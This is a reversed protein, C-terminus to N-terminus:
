VNFISCIEKSSITCFFRNWIDRTSTNPKIIIWTCIQFSIKFQDPFLINVQYNLIPFMWYTYVMIKLRIKIKHLYFFIIFSVESSSCLMVNWRMQTLKWLQIISKCRSKIKKQKGSGCPLSFMKPQNYQLERNLKSTIILLLKM